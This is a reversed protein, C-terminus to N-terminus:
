INLLSSLNGVQYFGSPPKSLTSMAPNPRGQVRTQHSLGSTSPESSISHVRASPTPSHSQMNMPSGMAVLDIILIGVDDNLVFRTNHEDPFFARNGPSEERLWVTAPDLQILSLLMYTINIQWM